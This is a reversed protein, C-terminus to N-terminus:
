LANARTKESSKLSNNRSVRDAMSLRLLVLGKLDIVSAINGHEKSTDSRFNHDGTRGYRIIIDLM